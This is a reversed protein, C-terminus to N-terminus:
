LAPPVTVDEVFDDVAVQVCFAFARVLIESVTPEDVM